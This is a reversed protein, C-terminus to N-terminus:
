NKQKKSNQKKFEEWMDEKVVKEAWEQAYESIQPFFILKCILNTQFSFSCYMCRPGTELPQCCAKGQCNENKLKHIFRGLGIIHSTRLLFIVKGFVPVAVKLGLQLIPQWFHPSGNIITLECINQFRYKNMVELAEEGCTSGRLASYSGVANEPPAKFCFCQSTRRKSAISRVM